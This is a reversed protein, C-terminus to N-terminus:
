SQVRLRVERAGEKVEDPLEVKNRDKIPEEQRTMTCMGMFYSGEEISVVTAIIDGEIRATKELTIKNKARVNGKIAGAVHVSEAEINANILAHAGVTLIGKTKISGTLSGEITVDGHSEFDGEVKVSLGILTELKEENDPTGRKFM